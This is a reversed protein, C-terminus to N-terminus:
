ESHEEVLADKVGDIILSRNTVTSTGAEVRYQVKIEIGSTLAHFLYTLNVGFQEDKGKFSTSHTCLSPTEAVGDLELQFFTDTIDTDNTATCNFDVRYCGNEGINKTTLIMADLDVFSTSATSTSAGSAVIQRDYRPLKPSRSDIITEWGVGDYLNLTGSTTNWLVRGGDAGGVVEADKETETRQPFAISLDASAANISGKLGPGGDFVFPIVCRAESGAAGQFRIGSVGCSLIMQESSNLTTLRIIGAGDARIVTNGDGGINVFTGASEPVISVTSASGTARIDVLSSAGQAKLRAITSAGEAVINIENDEGVSRITVDANTGLACIDVKSRTGSAALIAITDDGEAATEVVTDNGQACIRVQEGTTAVSLGPATLNNESLFTNGIDIGTCTLSTGSVTGDENVFVFQGPFTRVDTELTM